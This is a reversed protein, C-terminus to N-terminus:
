NTKKRWSDLQTNEPQLPSAVPPRRGERWVSRTERRRPFNDPLWVAVLHSHHSLLFPFFASPNNIKGFHTKDTQSSTTWHYPDSISHHPLAFAFLSFYFRGQQEPPLPSPEPPMAAWRHGSVLRSPPVTREAARCRGGRHTNEGEGCHQKQRVSTVHVWRSGARDEDLSPPSTPLSVRRRWLFAARSPDPSDPGLARRWPSLPPEHHWAAWLHPLFVSLTGENKYPITNEHFCVFM